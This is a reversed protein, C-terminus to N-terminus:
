NCNWREQTSPGNICIFLLEGGGWFFVRKNLVAYLITDTYKICRTSCLTYRNGAVNLHYPFAKIFINKLKFFSLLLLLLLFILSVSIGSIRPNRPIIQAEITIIKITKM